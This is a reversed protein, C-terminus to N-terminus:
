CGALAGFAHTLWDKSLPFWCGFWFLRSGVQLTDLKEHVLYRLICSIAHRNVFSRMAADGDVLHRLFRMYWPNALVTNYLFPMRPGFIDAFDRGDTVTAFLEALMDRCDFGPHVPMHEHFSIAEVGYTLVHSVARLDEPHSSWPKITFTM